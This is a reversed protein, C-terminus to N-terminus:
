GFQSRILEEVRKTNSLQMARQSERTKADFARNVAIQLKQWDFYSIGELRHVFELLEKRDEM